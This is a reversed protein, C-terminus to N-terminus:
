FRSPPPNLAMDHSPGAPAPGTTVALKGCCPSYWAAPDAPAGCGLCHLPVPSPTLRVPRAARAATPSHM